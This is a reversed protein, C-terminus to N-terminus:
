DARRRWARRAALAVGLLLAAAPEPVQVANVVINDLGVPNSGCCFPGIAPNSLSILLTDIPLVSDTAVTAFNGFTNPVTGSQTFVVTANRLGTFVYPIPTVSSYLDIATFLFPSGGHTVSVDATVTTGTIGLFQIFPAPHGFTNSTIWNGSTPTVAFGAETYPGFNGAAALNDFTITAASAPAASALLLMLPSALLVARM